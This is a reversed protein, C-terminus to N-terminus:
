CRNETQPHRLVAWTQCNGCIEIAPLVVREVYERAVQDCRIDDGHLGIARSRMAKGYAELGLLVPREGWLAFQPALDEFAIRGRVLKKCVTLVRELKRVEIRENMHWLAGGLRDLVTRM